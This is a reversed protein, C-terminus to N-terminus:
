HMHLMDTHFLPLRGGNSHVHDNEILLSAMQLTDMHVHICNYVCICEKDDAVRWNLRGAQVAEFSNSPHSNILWGREVVVNIELCYPDM